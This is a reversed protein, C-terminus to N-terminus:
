WNKNEKEKKVKIIRELRPRSIKLRRALESKSPIERVLYQAYLKDFDKPIVMQKGKYKGQAKAIAIGERQRELLIEREFENIAGIMTLMLKGTPTSTDFNEKTSVLHVRKKEFLDTIEMLDKVNRSIRSFDYIYVTDGERMFDFMENLKPRNLSKGSAFDIYWREIDYKKLAEKQRIENQDVSSVRIYALNM